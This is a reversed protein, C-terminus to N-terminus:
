DSHIHYGLAWREQENISKLMKKFYDPCDECYGDIYSVFKTKMEDFKEWAKKYQEGPYLKDVLKLIDKGLKNIEKEKDSTLNIDEKSKFLETLLNKM